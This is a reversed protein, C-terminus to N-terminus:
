WGRGGGGEGETFHIIILHDILVPHCVQTLHSHDFCQPSTLSLWKYVPQVPGGM